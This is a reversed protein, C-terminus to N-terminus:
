INVFIIIKSGISYKPIGVCGPIQIILL